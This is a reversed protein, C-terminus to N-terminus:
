RGGAYRTLQIEPRLVSFCAFSLKCDNRNHDPAGCWNSFLWGDRYQAACKFTFIAMAPYFNGSFITSVFAGFIVDM